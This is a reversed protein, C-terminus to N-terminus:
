YACTHLGRLWSAPWAHSGPAQSHSSHRQASLQARYSPAIGARRSQPSACIPHHAAWWHIFCGAFSSHFIGCNKRSPCQFSSSVHLDKILITAQLMKIQIGTTRMIKGWPERVIKLGLLLWFWLEQSIICVASFSVATPLVSFTGLSRGRNACHTQAVCVWCCCNQGWSREWACTHLRDYASVSVYIVGSCSCEWISCKPM